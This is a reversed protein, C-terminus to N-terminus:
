AASKQSRGGPRNPRYVRYLGLFKGKLRERAAETVRRMEDERAARQERTLPKSEAKQDGAM